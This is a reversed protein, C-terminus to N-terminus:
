RNPSPLLIHATMVSMIFSCAMSAAFRAMNFWFPRTGAGDAIIYIGLYITLSLLIALYLKGAGNKAFSIEEDREIANKGQTLRLIPNRVLAVPVLALANLGPLGDALFDVCLGTAFAVPMAALIGTRSPLFLILVPLITVTIYLSFDMYNSILVQVVVLLIFSITFNRNPKM